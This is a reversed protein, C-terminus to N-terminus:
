FDPANSLCPSFFLLNRVNDIHKKLNRVGSKWCYDMILIDIVDKELVGDAVGLGSAEKAQPALFREAIM